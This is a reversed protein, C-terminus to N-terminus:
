EEGLRFGDWTWGIRLFKAGNEFVRTSSEVVVEELSDPIEDSKITPPPLRPVLKHRYAARGGTHCFCIYEDFHPSSSLFFFEIM